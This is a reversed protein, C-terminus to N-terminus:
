TRPPIADGPNKRTRRSRGAMPRSSSAPSMARPALRTARTLWANQSRRSPDSGPITPRGITRSPSANVTIPTNGRSPYMGSACRASASTQFGSVALTSLTSLRPQRPKVASPRRASSAVSSDSAPSSWVTRACSAAAYGVSFLSQPRRMTASRVATTPSTLPVSHVNRPTTPKTRSIAQAFTALRSRTRALPRSESNARRADSPAPRRRITCCSTVSLRTSDSTPAAMPRSSATAAVLTKTASAGALMGRSSSTDISPRTTAKVNARETTTAPMKPDAGARWAHRAANLPASFPWRVTAPVAFRMRDVSTTASSASASISSMPAPRIVLLKARSSAHSGPKSRVPSAVVQISGGRSASGPVVVTARISRTRSSTAAAEPLGRPRGRNPPAATRRRRSRPCRSRRGAPTRAM